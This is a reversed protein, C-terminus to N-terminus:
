SLIKATVKICEKSRQENTSENEERLSLPFTPLVEMKGVGTEVSKSPFSDIPPRGLVRDLGRETGCLPEKEQQVPLGSDQHLSGSVSDSSLQDSGSAGEAHMEEAKAALVCGGLPM